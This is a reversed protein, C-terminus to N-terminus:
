KCHGREVHLIRLSAALAVRALPVEQAWSLHGCQARDEDAALHSQGHLTGQCWHLSWRPGPNEQPVLGRKLFVGLALIVFCAEGAGRPEWLLKGDVVQEPRLGAIGRCLSAAALLALCLLTTVLAEELLEDEKCSGSLLLSPMGVDKMILAVASWFRKDESPAM